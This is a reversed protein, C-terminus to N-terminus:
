TCIVQSWGLPQDAPAGGTGTVIKIGGDGATLYIESHWDGGGRLTAVPVSAELAIDSDVTVTYRGTGTREVRVVGHSRAVTGDKDVVAAAQAYPTIAAVGAM